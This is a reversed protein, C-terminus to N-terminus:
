APQLAPLSSGAAPTRLEREGMTPAQELLQLLCQLTLLLDTSTLIGLVQEGEVVPLCSIRHRLMATIAQGIPVEPGVTLPRPTMLDAARKGCRGCLDRDSLVGLLKGQSMVLLHHFGEENLTTQLVAGPVTPEVARVRRSMVHRVLIRSQLVEGLHRLLVRRIEQRKAFNPASADSSEERSLEVERVRRRALAHRVRQRIALAGALLVLGWATASLTRDSVFAGLGHPRSSDADEGGPIGGEMTQRQGSGLAWSRRELDGSSSKTNTLGSTLLNVTRRGELSLTHGAVVLATALLALIMAYEVASAASAERLFTRYVSWRTHLM